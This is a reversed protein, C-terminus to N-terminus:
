NNSKVTQYALGRFGCITSEGHPTYSCFGEEGCAKTTLLPISEFLRHLELFNLYQMKFELRCSLPVFNLLQLMWNLPAVMLSLCIM